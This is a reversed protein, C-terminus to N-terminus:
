WWNEYSIRTCGVEQLEKIAADMFHKPGCIYYNAEPGHKKGLDTFNMRKGESSVFIHDMPIESEFLLGTVRHRIGHYIATKVNNSEQKLTRIISILPTIGTGGAICVFEKSPMKRNGMKGSYTRSTEEYVEPPSTNLLRTDITLCRGSAKGILVNDGINASPSFLWSSVPHSTKQICLEFVGKGTPSCFSYGGVAPTSSKLIEESTFDLWQGAM